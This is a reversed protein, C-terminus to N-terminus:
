EHGLDKLAQKYGDTYGRSLLSWATNAPHQGKETYVQSKMAYSYDKSKKEIEENTPISPKSQKERIDHLEQLFSDKLEPTEAYRLKKLIEKESCVKKGFELLLNGKWLKCVMEVEQCEKRCAPNDCTQLPCRGVMEVSGEGPTGADIWAQVTEKSIPLTGQIHPYSAIVKKYFGIHCRTSSSLGSIKGDDEFYNKDIIKTVYRYGGGLEGRPNFAMVWDGEKIEDDSLVLLQQAQWDDIGAKNDYPALSYGLSGNDILDGKSWGEKNLPITVIQVTKKM